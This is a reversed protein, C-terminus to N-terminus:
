PSPASFPKVRTKVRFSEHCANCKQSLEVMAIRSREVDHTAVIKSLQSASDRMESAAKLWTEQSPNNPPRLMLLNGSEAILVAQGRAFGWSDEDIATAKLIKELGLFNANALGEMLLKNDAVPVLRPANKPMSAPASNSPRVTPQPRPPQSVAPWTTVLMAAVAAFTHRLRTM